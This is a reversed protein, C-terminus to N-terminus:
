KFKVAPRTSIRRSEANNRKFAEVDIKGHWGGAADRFAQLDAETKERGALRREERAFQDPPVVVGVELGKHIVILPEGSARAEEFFHLLAPNDDIEVIKPRHVM